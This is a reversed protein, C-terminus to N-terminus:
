KLKRGDAYLRELDYFMRNEKDFIHVIVDEFDILVWNATDYGEMGRKNYGNKEMQEMVNDAMAQVQNSNNGSAIVLYDTVISIDRIDINTIDEGKKDELASNVIELFSHNSM